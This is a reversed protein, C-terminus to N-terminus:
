EHRVAKTKVVHVLDTKPDINCQWGTVATLDTLSKKLTQRFTKLLGVDSGCLEKLTAVKYAFPKDHSSYFGHLWLALQKGKLALRENTALATWLGDAFFVAMKPNVVIVYELTDKDRFKEHLMPGQYTRRGDDLEISCASLRSLVDELWVYDGKGVNRDLVRLLGGATFRVFSGLPQGNHRHLCELFVDFDSQDLKEGTVRLELGRVTAKLVKKEYTRQGKGIVGFLSSRLIANAMARKDDDVYSLLPSLRAVTLEVPEIENDAHEFKKAEIGPKTDNRCERTAKKQKEEMAKLREELSKAM